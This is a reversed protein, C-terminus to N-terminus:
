LILPLHDSIENNPVLFNKINYNKDVFVYDSYYLKNDPYMEWVFRNRTTKIRYEDILDRYGNENFMRVSKTQPLLNFDGGIIRLGAKNEFFKILGQSQKLRDPNDLKNGPKSLGHFNCVHVNKNGSKIQVYIGLGCNTEREFIAQSSSIDINKRIYTAQPFDDDEVVFKYASIEKYESLLNKCLIKMEGYVEQFCFIDTDLSQEKIFESIENRVKGNWVNLFIIKM